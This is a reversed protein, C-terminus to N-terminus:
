LIDWTKVLAPGYASFEVFLKLKKLSIGMFLGAYKIHFHIFSIIYGVSEINSNDCRGTGM